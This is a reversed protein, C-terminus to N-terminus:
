MVNAKEFWVPNGSKIDAVEPSGYGKELKFCDSQLAMEINFGIPCVVYGFEKNM